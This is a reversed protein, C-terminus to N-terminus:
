PNLTREHVQEVAFSEVEGGQDPNKGVTYVATVDLSVPSDIVLFGDIPSHVAPGFIKAMKDCDVALAQDPLLTATVLGSVDNTFIASAIKEGFKVTQNQPNHINVVTKYSGPLISTTSTSFGPMNVACVFKAAYQFHYPNPIVDASALTAGALNSMCILATSFMATKFPTM